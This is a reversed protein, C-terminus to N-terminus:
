CMTVHFTSRGGGGMWWPTWTCLSACELIEGAAQIAAIEIVIVSAIQLRKCGSAEWQRSSLGERRVNSHTPTSCVVPAETTEREKLPCVHDRSKGKFLTEWEKPIGVKGM